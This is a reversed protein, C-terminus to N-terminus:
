EEETLTRGQARDLIYPPKAKPLAKATRMENGDPGYATLQLSDATMMTEVLSVV